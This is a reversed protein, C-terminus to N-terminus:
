HNRRRGNRRIPGAILVATIVLAILALGIVLWRLDISSTDDCVAAPNVCSM